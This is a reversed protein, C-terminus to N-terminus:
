GTSRRQRWPKPTKLNRAQVQLRQKEAPTGAPVPGALTKSISAEFTGDAVQGPRRLGREQQYAVTIGQAWWPDVDRAVLFAAMAARKWGDRVAGAGDLLEFWHERGEGTAARVRADSVMDTNRRVM